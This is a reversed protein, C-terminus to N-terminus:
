IVEAIRTYMRNKEENGYAENSWASPLPNTQMSIDYHRFLCSLFTKRATEEGVIIQCLLM